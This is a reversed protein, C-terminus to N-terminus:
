LNLSSVFGAKIVTNETVTFKSIVILITASCVDFPCCVATVMLLTSQSVKKGEEQMYGPTCLTGQLNISHSPRWTICWKGKNSFQRLKLYALLQNPPALTERTNIALYVRLLLAFYEAILLCSMVPSKWSTNLSMWISVGQKLQHKLKFKKFCWSFCGMTCDATGGSQHYSCAHIKKDWIKEEPGNDLM